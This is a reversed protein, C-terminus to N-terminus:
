PQTLEDDGSRAKGSISLPKISSPQGAYGVGVTHNNLTTKLQATGGSPISPSASLTRGGGTMVAVSVSKGSQNTINFEVPGAQLRSPDLVIGGTGAYVSVDIPSAPRSHSVFDIRTVAGCGAVLPACLV